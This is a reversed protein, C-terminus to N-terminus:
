SRIGAIPSALVLRMGNFSSRTYPHVIDRFDNQAYTKTFNYSGGRRVKKAENTLNVTRITEYDNLCWEWVNGVLDLAGCSSQAQPYIGVAITRELGAEATNAYGDRWEGFAFRRNEQYGQAVWLWEWELPLRIMLGTEDPNRRANAWNSFAVAQYWSLSDRPYNAHPQIQTVLEQQQYEFPMDHWWEANMYGDSAEVFAQYQIHTVPYKAIYFPNIEFSEGELNVVGGDVSYWEIDPMGSDNLGVGPRPDGVTALTEGIEMRQQHSTDPHHLEDLM